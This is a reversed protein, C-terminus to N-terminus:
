SHRGHQKYRSQYVLDENIGASRIGILRVLAICAVKPRLPAQFARLAELQKAHTNVGESQKTKIAKPKFNFFTYQKLLTQYFM